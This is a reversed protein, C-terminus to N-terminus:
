PKKTDANEIQKPEPMSEVQVARRESYLRDLLAKVAAEGGVQAVISNNNTIEVIAAKGSFRDPITKELYCESARWDKASFSEINALHAEIKAGKIGDLIERFQESNRMKAKWHHWTSVPIGLVACAEAESARKACLAAVARADDLTLRLGRRKLTARTPLHTLKGTDPLQSPSNPSNSVTNQM